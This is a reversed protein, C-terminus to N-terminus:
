LGHAFADVLVQPAAKNLALDDIWLGFTSIRSSSLENHARIADGVARLFLPLGVKLDQGEAQSWTFCSVLFPPFGKSTKREPTAVLKARHLTPALDIGFGMSLAAVDVWLADIRGSTAFARYDPYAELGFPLVNEQPDGLRDIDTKLGALIINM